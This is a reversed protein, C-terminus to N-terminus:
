SQQEVRGTGATTRDWVSPSLGAPIRLSGKRIGANRKELCATSALCRSWPAVAPIAPHWFELGHSSVSRSIKNKNM